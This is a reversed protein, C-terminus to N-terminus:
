DIGSKERKPTGCIRACIVVPERDKLVEADTRFERYLFGPLEKALHDLSAGRAELERTKTRPVRRVPM